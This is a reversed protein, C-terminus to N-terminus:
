HIRPCVRGGKISSRVFEEQSRELRYLKSNILSSYNRNETLKGDLCEDPLNSIFGYWAMSGATMFSMINAGLTEKCLNDM